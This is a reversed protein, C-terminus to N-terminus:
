SGIARDMEEQNAKDQEMLHEVLKKLARDYAQEVVDLKREMQAMITPGITRANQAREGHKVLMKLAHRLESTPEVVYKKESPSATSSPSSSM